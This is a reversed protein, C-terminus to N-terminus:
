QEKQDGLLLSNGLPFAPHEQNKIQEKKPFYKMTHLAQPILYYPYSSLPPLDRIESILKTSFCFLLMTFTSNNYSQAGM